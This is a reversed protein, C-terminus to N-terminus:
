SLHSLDGLGRCRPAELGGDAPEFDITTVSSPPLTFGAWVLPVPIALLHALWTLALGQHCVLALRAAATGAPVPRYLAGIRVRGHRALFGDAERVLEAFREDLAAPALSPLAHWGERGVPPVAARM